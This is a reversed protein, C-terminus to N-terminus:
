QQKLERTAVMKDEVERVIVTYDTTEIGVVTNDLGPFFYASLQKLSHLHHPHM